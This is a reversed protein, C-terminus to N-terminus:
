IVLSKIGTSLKRVLYLLRLACDEKVVIRQGIRYSNDKSTSIYREDVIGGNHELLHRKQFLVILEGIEQDNLWDNYEKGTKVKFLLSGKEIIQFDNVRVSITPPLKSYIDAALKQFASVIESINGEILSRCMTEAKDKGYRIEFTKNLSTMSEIMKEITDLSENFVRKVSNNRCCPCFYASGIVSYKTKCKECVIELEWEPRQGIPNNIFSLKLKPNYTIRVFKNNRFDSAMKEFTKNLENSILSQAYSAAIEEIADLQEFTYWQDSSASHGCMPCFVEDDSVKETWDGMDIKFIYECKENPCQRDYFGKDDSQIEVPISIKGM